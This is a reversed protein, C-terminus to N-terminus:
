AATVSRGSRVSRRIGEQLRERGFFSGDADRAEEVGDTVFVLTDGIDLEISSEELRPHEVVGLVTGALQPVEVGGERRIIIPAPHGASSITARVTDRETRAFDTAAVTCFQASPAQDLIARNLLALTQAPGAGDLMAAARLTHRCLATLRAAEAGKGCVDGIVTTYADGKRFVDYFDGGVENGEGMPVFVVAFELGAPDPLAPPLLGQQLTHAIHHEREYLRANELALATRRGIEAYLSLDPRAGTTQGDVTIALLAATSPAGATLPVVVCTGAIGGARVAISDAVGSSMARDLMGIAERYLTAGDDGRPGETQHAALTAPVGHADIGEISAFDALGPVLAAVLAAARGSHSSVGELSRAIQLLLTAREAQSETEAHLRARELAQSCDDALTSLFRREDAQFARETNYRLVLVGFTRKAAVLPLAAIAVSGQGLTPPLDPFEREREALTSVFVPKSTRAAAAAPFPADFSFRRLVELAREPYDDDILLEVERAEHDILGVAAAAAGHQAIAERMVTTAVDTPTLSAALRMGLSYLSTAYRAAEEASERARSEAEVLLARELAQGCFQAMTALFDADAKGVEHERSFWVNFAGATEGGVWLPLAYIAQAGPGFTTASTPFRSRLEEFTRAFAPRGTRYAATVSFHQDIPIRALLRAKAGPLDRGAVLELAAGDASRLALSGGQADLQELAQDLFAGAVEGPSTARSLAAALQRLRQARSDALALTSESEGGAIRSRVVGFVVAGLAAGVLAVLLHSANM